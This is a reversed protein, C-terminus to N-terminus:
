SQEEIWAFVDSRWYRIAKRGLKIWRPGEGVSRWYKLTGEPTDTLVAVSPTSMLVDGAPRDTM